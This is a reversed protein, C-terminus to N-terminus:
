YNDISNTLSNSTCLNIHVGGKLRFFDRFQQLPQQTFTHPLDINNNHTDKTPLSSRLNM